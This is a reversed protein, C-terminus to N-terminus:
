ATLESNIRGNLVVNPNIETANQLARLMITWDQYLENTMLVQKYDRGLKKLIMMYAYIRGQNLYFVNDASVDFWTNGGERMENQLQKEAAKLGNIVTQNVTYLTKEDKIWFCKEEEFAKNLNKLKKRAKRYQNSSSPATKLKNSPSMLWVDEPYSLLKLVERLDDNSQKDDNCYVRKLLGDMVEKLGRIIGTQFYPMNDLCYAPFFFPLNPTWLHDNVERDILKAAMEVTQSQKESLLEFDYEPSRDINESMKGGLPYYALILVVISAIFTKPWSDFLQKILKGTQLMIKKVGHLFSYLYKDIM